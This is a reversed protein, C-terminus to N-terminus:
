SQKGVPTSIGAIYPEMVKKPMTQHSICSGRSRNIQIEQPNSPLQTRTKTSTIYDGFIFNKSFINPTFIDYGETFKWNKLCRNYPLFLYFRYRQDLISGSQSIVRIELYYRLLLLIYWINVTFYNQRYNEYCICIRVFLFIL